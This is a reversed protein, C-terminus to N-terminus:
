FVMDVGIWFIQGAENVKMLDSNFSDKSRHNVHWAYTRNFLNDVGGSLKVQQSIHYHGNLHCVGFGSSADVDLGSHTNLKDQRAAFECRSGLSWRDQTYDLKLTTLLAPIQPLNKDHDNVPDKNIGRTWSLAISPKLAGLQYGTELDLGYLRAETNRYLYAGHHHPHRLIFDSVEDIYVVTSLSYNRESFYYGADFQHHIEPKIRPNGVWDDSGHCCSGRSALYRETADATRVSRSVKFELWQVKSLHHQWSLIGSLNLENVAEAGYGYYKHYLANPSAEGLTTHHVNNAKAVLHDLRGGLRVRNHESLEYELETFLGWQQYEVEPWMIAQLSSSSTDLNVKFREAERQNTMYDIGLYWDADLLYQTGLWRGGWTRSTSPASLGQRRGSNRIRVSYNDMLHHIDSYYISFEQEDIGALPQDYNMKLRWLNADAYPADMGNGSYLVDKDRIVEINADVSLSETVRGAMVLGGSLSHFAASHTYGDGDQYNGNNKYEGYTRLYGEESGLALDAQTSFSKSNTQYLGGIRGTYEKEEFRPVEREYLVTGGSGGSGYLVTDFGKVVRVRDYGVPSAYSTPPDMRGPCANLAQAGGLFVNLQSQQQGRIIPEFGKGGKRGASVGRVTRLQEGADSAFSRDVLPSFYVDTAPKEESVEIVFANPEHSYGVCIFFLSFVAYICLWLKIIMGQRLMMIKTKRQIFCGCEIIM